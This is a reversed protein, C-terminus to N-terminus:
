PAIVSLYSFVSNCRWVSKQTRRQIYSQKTHLGVVVQLALFVLQNELRNRSNWRCNSGGGVKSVFKCSAQSTPSHMGDLTLQRERFIIGRCVMYFATVMTPRLAAFGGRTREM